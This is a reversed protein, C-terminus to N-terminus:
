HDPGVPAGLAGGPSHTGDRQGWRKTPEKRTFSWTFSEHHCSCSCTVTHFCSEM